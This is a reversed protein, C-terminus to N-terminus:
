SLNLKNYARTAANNSILLGGQTLIIGVVANILARVPEDFVLWIILNAVIIATVTALRTSFSRLAKEREYRKKLVETIEMLQRELEQGSDAPNVKLIDLNELPDRSINLLTLGSLESFDNLYRLPSFWQMIFGLSILILLVLANGKAGREKATAALIAFIAIAALGGVLNVFVSQKYQTIAKRLAGQIFLFRDKSSMDSKQNGM